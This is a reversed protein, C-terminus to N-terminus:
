DQKDPKKGEEPKKLDYESDIRVRKYDSYHTVVNRSLKSFLLIRASINLEFASPLWVEGGVKEQEMVVATQPSISALLGGGVKFSDSFRAEVRATQLATEDVWITGILKNVLAENRNRPKVGKKPEFDFALVEHGRFMERRMSTIESLKLFTLPTIRGDDREDSKGSREREEERQKRKERAELADEVSKQVHHDIKEQEDKPLEKGNRSILRRVFRRAVPTVEYVRTEKDKAPGKDDVERETETERFTYRERLEEVQEQNAIMAKMVTELDPLPRAGAVEPYRFAGPEVANHVVRDMTVSLENPGRKLRIAFPEMVGDVARHDGFFVEELGDSTEREQKVILFTKADFFLRVSASEKIFEVSYAERGDVAAKAPVQAVVRYRSLDRLRSNAIVAELRLRKAEDGLLTRLGRADLRWASKGNYCESIRIGGSELDVRLSEPTAAQYSFRGIAGDAAKTTGTLLTNKVRGAANGVARKYRDLIKSASLDAAQVKVTGALVLALLLYGSIRKM